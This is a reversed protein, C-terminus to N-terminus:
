EIVFQALTMVFIWNALELGVTMINWPFPPLTPCRRGSPLTNKVLIRQLTTMASYRPYPLLSPEGESFPLKAIRDNAGDGSQYSTPNRM